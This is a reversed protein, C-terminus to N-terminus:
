RVRRASIRGKAQPTAVTYQSRYKLYYTTTGSLSARLCPISLSADATATPGVCRVSSDGDVLGTGSNGTTTSIGTIVQTVTATGYVTEFAVSVDWDGATLSISTLDGYQDTTPFNTYGAVSSVYEGVFAATASDNTTTGRISVAGTSGSSVISDNTGLAGSRSVKFNDSDSNDIGTSFITGSAIQYSIYPDAVTTETVQMYLSVGAAPSTSTSTNILDIQLVDALASAASIVRRSTSGTISIGLSHIDQASFTKVGSISQAGDTMVFSASAGADPITYTRAGTQTQTNINTTTNGSNNSATFTTKGVTSGAPYVELTGTTGNKGATLTAGQISVGNLISYLSQLDLNGALILNVITANIANLNFLPITGDDIGKLYRRLNAFEAATMEKDGHLESLWPQVFQWATM